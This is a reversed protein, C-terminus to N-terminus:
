TYIYINTNYIYYNNIKMCKKTENQLVTAAEMYASLRADM